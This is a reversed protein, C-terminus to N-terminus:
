YRVPVQVARCKAAAVGHRCSVSASKTAKHRRHTHTHTHKGTRLSFLVRVRRSLVTTFDRRWSMKKWASWDTVAAPSWERGTSVFSPTDDDRCDYCWAVAVAQVPFVNAALGHCNRRALFVRPQSKAAAEYCCYRSCRWRCRRRWRGWTRTTTIKEREEVRGTKTKRLKELKKILKRRTRRM